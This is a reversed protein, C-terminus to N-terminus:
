IVAEGLYEVTFFNEDYSEDECAPFQDKENAPIMKANYVKNYGQDENEAEVSITGHMLTGDPTGWYVEFDYKNM